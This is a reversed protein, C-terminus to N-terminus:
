AGAQSHPWIRYGPFTCVLLYFGPLVLQACSFEQRDSRVALAWLWVAINVVAVACLFKWWIYTKNNMNNAPQVISGQFQDLGTKKASDYLLTM